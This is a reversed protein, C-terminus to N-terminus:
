EKTWSIKYSQIVSIVAEFSTRVLFTSIWLIGIEFKLLCNSFWLPRSLFLSWSVLVLVIPFPICTCQMIMKFCANEIDVFRTFIMFLSFSIFLYLNKIQIFCCTSISFNRLIRKTFHLKSNENKGYFDKEIKKLGIWNIARDFQFIFNILNVAEDVHHYYDVNVNGSSITYFFFIAKFYAYFSCRTWFM